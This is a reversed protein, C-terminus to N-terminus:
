TNVGVHLVHKLKIGWTLSAHSKLALGKESAACAPAVPLWQCGSTEPKARPKLWSKTASGQSKASVARTSLCRKKISVLPQGFCIPWAGHNAKFAMQLSNTPVKASIAVILHGLISPMSLAIPLCRLERQAEVNLM